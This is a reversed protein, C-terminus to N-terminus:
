GSSPMRSPCTVPNLRTRKRDVRERIINAVELPDGFLHTMDTFDVFCEDISYRQIQASYEGILEMLANSSRLYLDYHPPVVTLTPCKQFAAMLSEGTQIKYPKAAHSKALIIGHRKVPDGGVASPITRLDLTDGHQM